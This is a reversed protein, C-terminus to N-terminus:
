RLGIQGGSYKLVVGPSSWIGSGVVIALYNLPLSIFPFHYLLIIKGGKGIIFLVASSLKIHSPLEISEPRTSMVGQSSPTSIEM